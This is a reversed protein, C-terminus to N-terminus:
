RQLRSRVIALIAVSVVVIPLVTLWSQGGEIRTALGILLNAIALPVVVDRAWSQKGWLGGAVFLNVIAAFAQILGDTQEPLLYSGANPAVLNGIVGFDLLAGIVHFAGALWFLVALASIPPSQANTKM